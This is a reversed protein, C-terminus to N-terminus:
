MVPAEYNISKENINYFLSSPVLPAGILPKISVRGIHCICTEPILYKNRNTSKLEDSVHIIAQSRNPSIIVASTEFSGYHYTEGKWLGRLGKPLTSTCKGYKVPHLM